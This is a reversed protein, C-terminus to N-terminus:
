KAAYVAESQSFELVSWIDSYPLFVIDSDQAGFCSYGFDTLKARGSTTYKEVNPEDDFVLVNKPKVDGHVIDIM